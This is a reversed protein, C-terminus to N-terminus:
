AERNNMEDTRESLIQIRKQLANVEETFLGTHAAENLERQAEHLSESDCFGKDMLEELQDIMLEAIRLHVRAVARVYVVANDGPGGDLLAQLINERWIAPNGLVIKAEPAALLSEVFQPLMATESLKPSLGTAKESATPCSTDSTDSSAIPEVPNEHLM